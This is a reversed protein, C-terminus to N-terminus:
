KGINQMIHAHMATLGAPSVLLIDAHKAYILALALKIAGFAISRAIKRAHVYVCMTTGLPDPCATLKPTSEKIASQSLKENRTRM